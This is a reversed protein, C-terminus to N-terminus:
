ANLEVGLGDMRATQGESMASCAYGETRDGNSRAIYRENAVDHRYSAVNRPKMAANFGCNAGNDKEKTANKGDLFNKVAAPDLVFPVIDSNVPLEGIGISKPSV